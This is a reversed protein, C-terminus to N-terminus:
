CIKQRKNSFIKLFDSEPIKDKFLLEFNNNIEKVIEILETKTKVDPKNDEFLNKKCKTNIQKQRKFECPTVEKFPKPLDIKKNLMLNYKQEASLKSINYFYEDNQLNTYILSFVFPTHIKHIQSEKQVRTLGVYVANLPGELDIEITKDKFTLGQASHYTNTYALTLPFQLVNLCNKSEKIWNYQEEPIIKICNKKTLCYQKNTKEDNVYVESNNILVLKVETKTFENYWIYTCGVILPLYSLFKNHHQETNFDVGSTDNNNTCIFPSKIVEKNQIFKLTRNKIKKHLYTLFINDYNDTVYFKDQFMKFITFLIPFDLPVYDKDSLIYKLKKIKEEYMKDTIRVQNYLNLQTTCLLELISFNRGQHFKSVQITNLQNKDGAFIISFKYKRACWYLLILYWPSLVTYEDLIVCHTNDVHIYKFVLSYIKYVTSIISEELFLEKYEDFTISLALLFYKCCTNAVINKYHAVKQKLNNSFVIYSIPLTSSKAFEVLTHSKGTGPPSDLLVFAPNNVNFDDNTFTNSIIEHLKTFLFQQNKNLILAENTNLCASKYEITNVFTNNDLLKCLNYKVDIDNMKTVNFKLLNSCVQKDTFSLIPKSLFKLINSKDEM